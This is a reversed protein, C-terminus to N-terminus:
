FHVRMGIEVPINIVFLYPSESDSLSKIFGPAIATQSYLELYNDYLLCNAGALIRINAGTMWYFNKDTLLKGSIGLGTIFNWNNKIQTDILYYDFFCNIGFGFNETNDGTEVGFGFTAPLRMLRLTGTISANIGKYDVKSSSSTLSPIISVQAGAGIAFVKLSSFLLITIIFLQKKKM